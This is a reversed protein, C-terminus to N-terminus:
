ALPLASSLANLCAFLLLAHPWAQGAAIRVGWQRAVSHPEAAVTRWASAITLARPLVQRWSTSRCASTSLQRM